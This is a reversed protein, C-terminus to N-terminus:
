AARSAAEQQATWLTHYLGERELLQAHTGSEVLRGADLVLIQQAAAITSLRHAVVIQTRGSGLKELAAQVAVETASDLASTAEDLVVIPPNKLLCRAIAVRQKEGGSLRLGREGVVTEWRLELSEIMELIQAARAAEEREARSAAPRGYAINAEITTNFSDLSPAFAPSTLM